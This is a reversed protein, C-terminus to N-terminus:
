LALLYSNPTLTVRLQVTRKEPKEDEVTYVGKVFGGEMVELFKGEEGLYLHHLDEPETQSRQFNALAKRSLWHGVLARSPSTIERPKESPSTETYYYSWKSSRKEEGEGTRDWYTWEGVELGNRASGESKIEGNEYWYKWLGDEMGNIYDGEKKKRGNKYRYVWHGDEKGELFNGDERLSKEVQNYYFTWHGDRLGDKYAGQQMELGNEYWYKWSGVKKGEETYAGQKKRIGNDYRYEWWGTETGETFAGKKRIQGNRYWYTWPGVQMYYDRGPKGTVEVEGLQRYEGNSWLKIPTSAGAPNVPLLMFVVLWLALFFTCYQLRRIM